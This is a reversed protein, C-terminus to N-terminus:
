PSFIGSVIDLIKSSKVIEIGGCSRSLRQLFSTPLLLPFINKYLSNRSFIFIPGYNNVM